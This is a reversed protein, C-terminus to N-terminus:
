PLFTTYTEGMEQRSADLQGQLILYSSNVIIIKYSALVKSLRITSVTSPMARYPAQFLKALPYDDASFTYLAGTHLIAESGRFLFLPASICFWNYFM